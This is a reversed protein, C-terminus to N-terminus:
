KEEQTLLATESLVWRNEVIRHHKLCLWQVDLPKSYDPHHAQSKVDGCVECPQRILKGSKIARAVAMHARNKEPYKARQRKGALYKNRKAVETKNYEKQRVLIKERDRRYVRKGKVRYYGLRTKSNKSYCAICWSSPKEKTTYWYFKALPLVELCNPCKKETRVSWDIKKNKSAEFEALLEKKQTALTKRIAIKWNEEQQQIFRSCKQLSDMDAFRFVDGGLHLEFGNELAWGDTPPPVEEATSQGHQANDIVKSPTCHGCANPRIVVTKNPSMCRCQAIIRGCSCKIIEHHSM